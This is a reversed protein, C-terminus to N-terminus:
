IFLLLENIDVSMFLFYKSFHLCLFAIFFALFYASHRLVIILGKANYSGPFTKM